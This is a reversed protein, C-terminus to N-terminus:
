PAAESAREAEELEERAAELAREAKRVKARASDVRKEAMHRSRAADKEARVRERKQAATEKKRPAPKPPPASGFGVPERDTVVRGEDFEERLEDDTAVARLTERARDAMASGGHGAEALAKDVEGMLAEVAEAHAGMAERLKEGGGEGAAARQAGALKDGSELLAQAARPAEHAARNVAWAPVSPKKLKKVRAAGASDGDDALRKALANRESVFQDPPASYLAAEEDDTKSRKAAM